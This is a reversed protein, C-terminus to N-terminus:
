HVRRSGPRVYLAVGGLYSSFGERGGPPPQLGLEAVGALVEDWSPALGLVAAAADLFAEQDVDDEASLQDELVALRGVAESFVLFRESPSPTVPLVPAPARM